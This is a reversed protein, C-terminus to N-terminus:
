GPQPDTTNAVRYRPRLHEASWGESSVFGHSANLLFDMDEPAEEPCIRYSIRSCRLIRLRNRAIQVM